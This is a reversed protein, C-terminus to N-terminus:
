FSFIIHTISNEDNTFPDFILQDYFFPKATDGNDFPDYICPKATSKDDFPDYIYPKATSGDDFYIRYM